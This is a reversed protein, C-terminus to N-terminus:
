LWFHLSHKAAVAQYGMRTYLAQASYNTAQTEVTQGTIDPSLCNDYYELMARGLGQRQYQHLVAILFVDSVTEKEFVNVVGAPSGDVFAIISYSARGSCSNKISAQWLREAVDQHINNDRFFRSHQLTTSLPYFADDWFSTVKEIRIGTALAATVPQKKAPKFFTLETDTLLGREAFCANVLADAESAIKATLFRFGRRRAESLAAVVAPRWNNSATLDTGEESFQLFGCSLGLMESDWDLPRLTWM